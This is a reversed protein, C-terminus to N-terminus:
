FLLLMLLAVVIVSLAALTVWVVPRPTRVRV